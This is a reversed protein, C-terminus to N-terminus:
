ALKLELHMPGNFAEISDPDINSSSASISSENPDVLYVIHAFVLIPRKLRALESPLEQTVHLTIGVAATCANGFYEMNDDM